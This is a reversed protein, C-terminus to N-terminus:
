IWISLSLRRSHATCNQMETACCTLAAGCYLTHQKNDTKWLHQRSQENLVAHLVIELSGSWIHFLASNGCRATFFTFISTFLSGLNFLNSNILSNMGHHLVLEPGWTVSTSMEDSCFVVLGHRVLSHWKLATLHVLTMWDLTQGWVKQCIRQLTCACKYTCSVCMCMTNRMCVFSYHILTTLIFTLRKHNQTCIGHGLLEGFVVLSKNPIYSKGTQSKIPRKERAYFRKSWLLIENTSLQDWGRLTM